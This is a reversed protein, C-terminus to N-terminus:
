GSMCTTTMNFFNKLGLFVALLKPYNIHYKKDEQSKGGTHTTEYVAGGGAMVQPM